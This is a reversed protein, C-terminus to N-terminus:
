DFLVRMHAHLVARLLGRNASAEHARGNLRSCRAATRSELL